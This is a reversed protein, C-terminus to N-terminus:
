NSLTTTPCPTLLDLKWTFDQTLITKDYPYEAATAGLPLDLTATVQVDHSSGILDWHETSALFDVDFTQNTADYTLLSPYASLAPPPTIALTIAYGCPSESFTFANTTMTPDGFVVSVDNAVM